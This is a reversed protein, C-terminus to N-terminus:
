GFGHQSIYWSIKAKMRLEEPHTSTDEVKGVSYQFTDVCSPVTMVVAVKQDLRHFVQTVSEVPTDLQSSKGEISASSPWGSNGHKIVM